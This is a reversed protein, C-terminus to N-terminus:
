WSSVLALVLQNQVSIFRNNIAKALKILHDEIRRSQWIMQSFNCIQFWGVDFTQHLIPGAM